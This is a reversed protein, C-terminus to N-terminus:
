LSEDSPHLLTVLMDPYNTIIGDVGATIMNKMLDVSNVTWAFALRGEARCRGMFEDTILSYHSSVAPWTGSFARQLNDAEFILGCAQTPAAELCLRVVNEDFSTVLTKGPNRRQQVLALVATLTDQSHPGAKIEVNLFLDPGVLELVENLLPIRQGAFTPAFWNGADLSQLAAADKEWVLGNGSTTRELTDDHIVVIKGDSSMTVDLEIGDAGMEIAKRFAAITNEPAHGSAGRHAIVLPRQSKTFTAV